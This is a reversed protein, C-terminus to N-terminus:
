LPDGWSVPILSFEVDPSGQLDGPTVPVEYDGTTERGGVTGQSAGVLAKGVLSSSDGCPVSTTYSCDPLRATSTASTHASTIRPASNILGTHTSSLYSFGGWSPLPYRYWGQYLGTTAKYFLFGIADVACAGGIASAVDKSWDQTMVFPRFTDKSVRWGPLKSVGAVPLYNSPAWTHKCTPCVGGMGLRGHSPDKPCYDGRGSTWVESSAKLGTLPNVGRISPVVAFRDGRFSFSFEKGYEVAFLVRGDPMELFGGKGGSVECSLSVGNKTLENMIRAM